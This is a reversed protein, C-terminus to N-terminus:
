ERRDDKHPPNTGDYVRMELGGAYLRPHKEAVWNEAQTDNTFYGRAIEHPTGDLTWFLYLVSDGGIITGRVEEETFGSIPAVTNKEQFPSTCSKPIYHAMEETDESDECPAITLMEEGNVEWERVVQFPLDSVLWPNPDRENLRTVIVFKM